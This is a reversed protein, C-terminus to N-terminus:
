GEKYIEYKYSGVPILKGNMRVTVAYSNYNLIFKVVSAGKKYTVM